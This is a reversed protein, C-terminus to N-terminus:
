IRRGEMKARTIGYAVWLIAVVLPQVLTMLLGALLNTKWINVILVIVWCGGFVVLGMMPVGMTSVFMGLVAGVFHLLNWWNLILPWGYRRSTYDALAKTTGLALLVALVLGIVLGGGVVAVFGEPRGQKQVPADAASPQEETVSAVESAPDVAPLEGYGTQEPPASFEAATSPRVAVWPSPTNSRPPIPDPTAQPNSVASQPLPQAKAPRPDVEQVIQVERDRQSPTLEGIRDGYAAAICSGDEGCRRVGSLWAQQDSLLEDSRSSSRLASRFVADLRRDLSSLQPDHCIALETPHRARRCDFSTQASAAQPLMLMGAAVSALAAPLLIRIM